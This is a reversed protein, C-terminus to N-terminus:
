SVSETKEQLEGSELSERWRRLQGPSLPRLFEYIYRVCDRDPVVGLNRLVLYFFKRLAWRTQVFYRRQEERIQQARDAGSLGTLRFTTQTNM